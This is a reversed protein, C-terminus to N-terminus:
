IQCQVPHAVHWRRALKTAQHPIVNECFAVDQGGALKRIGHGDVAARETKVIGTMLLVVEPQSVPFPDFRRGVLDWEPAEIGAVRCVQHHGPLVDADGVDRPRTRFHHEVPPLM